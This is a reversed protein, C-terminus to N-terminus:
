ELNNRISKYDNLKSIFIRLNEREEANLEIFKHHKIAKDITSCSGDHLYPYTFNLNRLSPTKFAFQDKKDYTLAYRGNDSIVSDNIVYFNDSSYDPAKHCSFCNDEAIVYWQESKTRQADHKLLSDLESTYSVLTKQYVALAASIQRLRLSDGFTILSLNQYNKNNYLRKDLENWSMNMETESRIPSISQAELSNFGGDWHFTNKINVNFLSPANRKGLRKNVGRSFSVTDAFAFNPEHCSSCSISSDLSLIPDFFLM